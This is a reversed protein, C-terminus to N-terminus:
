VGILIRMPIDFTHPNKLYLTEIFLRDTDNVDQGGAFLNMEGGTKWPIANPSWVHNLNAQSYNGIEADTTISYGQINQVLARKTPATSMNVFDGSTFHYGIHDTSQQDWLYSENEGDVLIPTSPNKINEYESAIAYQFYKKNSLMTGSSDACGCSNTNVKGFEPVILILKVRGDPYKRYKQVLNGPHVYPFPEIGGFGDLDFYFIHRYKIGKTQAMVIINGNAVGQTDFAVLPYLTPNANVAKILSDSFNGSVTFEISSILNLDEDYLEYKHKTGVGLIGPTESLNVSFQYEEQLEGYEAIGSIDLKQTSGAKLILRKDDYRNVPICIGKTPIAIETAAGKIIGFSMPDVLRFCRISYDPPCIIKPIVSM